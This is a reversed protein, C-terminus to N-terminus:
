VCPIWHIIDCNVHRTVKVNGEISHSVFCFLNRNTHRHRSTNKVVIGDWCFISLNQNSLDSIHSINIIWQVMDHRLSNLLKSLNNILEYQQVAHIKRLHASIAVYAAYVTLHFVLTMVQPGHV